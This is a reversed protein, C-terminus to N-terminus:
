AAASRPSHTPEAQAPALEAPDPMAEAVSDAASQWDFSTAGCFYTHEYLSLGSPGTWRTQLSFRGGGLASSRLSLVLGSADHWYAAAGTQYDARRHWGSTYDPQLMVLTTEVQKLFSFLRM